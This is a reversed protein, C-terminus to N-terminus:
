AAIEEKKPPGASAQQMAAQQAAQQAQISATIQNKISQPLGSSEVLVDPTILGPYATAIEKVEAANAMRMTESAVAEGVSVDYKGLDGALVEAIAVEAMEQDYQMPNGDQGTMPEQQGTTENLLLPPPFNKTLFAEGLVKKATETDYIEGLQSLLFRGCLQKTRALNDFLEQIMLLGQRQRLAIARGSSSSDQAALLDANIGLQAKISEASTESLQAHGQSLQNPAIRTPAQMGRKYTLNVGPATGFRKVEEPDVWTDEESLWGSNASSNLHRLMLMESKNHKEQAGKVGHVVGQVLLHRDDGKLPATSFRAFYPIIPYGKWKPFFWAREDSLPKDMGPVHAFCWIEPVKKKIVIFREPDRQTPEIPPMPPQAPNGMQDVMVLGQSAQIQQAQFDMLSQTYAAQEQAIGNQYETIFSEARDVTEAEEIRGTQKDGVFAKEVWKKYYRELLDFRADKVEEDNLASKGMKYGQTQIHEEQGDQMESLSIKGGKSDEIQKSKDPYLSILDDASLDAKFKYVYRADSFDYERHGPEPFVSSGDTKTWCPKGNILNETYDLYLELHSEGCIIGDKFQDSAKYQFDSTKISHKFLASAIEAKLGDEEGEPFAKFESRNQRELGTLLFINPAIRNDTFPSFGAEKLTAADEKSWQDGLAFKFDEMQRVILKSKAKYAAKFDAESTEVTLKKEPM